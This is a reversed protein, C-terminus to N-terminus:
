PKTFDFILENKNVYGKQRAVEVFYVDDSGLRAIETTLTQNKREIEQNEEMIIQIKGSTRTLAVLGRPSFLHWGVLGILGIIGAYILQRNWAIAYDLLNM